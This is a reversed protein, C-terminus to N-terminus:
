LGSERLVADGFALVVESGTDSRRLQHYYTGPRLAETDAGLIAIAARDDTGDGDGISPTKTIEVAGNATAKLEWALTWGTMAQATTGDSQNVDINITKDEGIFWNVSELINAEIGM